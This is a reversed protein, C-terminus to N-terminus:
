EYHQINRQRSEFVSRLQFYVVVETAYCSMQWSIILLVGDGVTQLTENSIRNDLRYISLSSFLIFEM